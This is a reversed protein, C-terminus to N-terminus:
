KKTRTPARKVRKVVQGHALRYAPDIVIVSVPQVELFAPNFQATGTRLSGELTASVNKDLYRRFRPIYRKM